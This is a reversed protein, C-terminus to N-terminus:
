SGLKKLRISRFWGGALVPRDQELVLGPVAALVEEFVVDMRTAVRRSLPTVLRRFPAKQGPKLFKDLIVIHGGPKLVRATEALCRGPEAVVALILHLVAHDFVADRFPLRQSDGQLLGVELGACRPRARSLMAWTLDLATYQHRDPLHPLDLGTGIGSLFVHGPALDRLQGLNTARIRRSAQEIALDYVPAFFTYSQKLGM